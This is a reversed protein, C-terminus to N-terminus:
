ICVQKFILMVMLHLFSLADDYLLKLYIETILLSTNYRPNNKNENM